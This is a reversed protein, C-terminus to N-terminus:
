KDLKPTGGGPLGVNQAILVEDEHEGLDLINRELAGCHMANNAIVAGRLHKIVISYNPAFQKSINAGDGGGIRFTNGTVSVNVCRYMVLHASACDEIDSHDTDWGGRKFINGTISVTETM